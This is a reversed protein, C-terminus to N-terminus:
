SIDFNIFVSFSIIFLSFYFQFFVSFSIIFLFQFVSLLFQFATFGIVYFKSSHLVFSFDVGIKRKGDGAM